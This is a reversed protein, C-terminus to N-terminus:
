RARRTPPIAAPRREASDFLGLQRLVRTLYIRMEEATREGPRILLHYAIAGGILDLMIEPDADERLLGQARAAHLLGAIIERRPVIYNNWYVTTLRPCSSASGILRAALQKFDRQTLTAALADVLLRPMSSMATPHALAQQEPAGRASALADAILAEKSKWRRYVTTRAVGARAAIQEISAGELGNEAFLELGARLIARDAEVARPRGPGNRENRRARM